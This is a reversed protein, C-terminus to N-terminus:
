QVIVPTVDPVQGDEIMGRVRNVLDSTRIRWARELPLCAVHQEGDDVIIRLATTVEPVLSSPFPNEVQDICIVESFAHTREFEEIAGGERFDIGRLYIRAGSVDIALTFLLGVAIDPVADRDRKRNLNDTVHGAQNSAAVFEVECDEEAFRARADEILTRPTKGGRAVHLAERAADRGESFVMRLWRALVYSIIFLIILVLIAYMM